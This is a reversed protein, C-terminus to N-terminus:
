GDLFLTRPGNETAEGDGRLDSKLQALFEGSEAARCGLKKLPTHCYKSLRHILRGYVQKGTGSEGMMVVPINTRAIERVIANLKQIALSHGCVFAAIAPQEAARTLYASM